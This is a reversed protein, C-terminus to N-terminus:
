SPILHQPISGFLLNLKHKRLVVLLPWKALNM